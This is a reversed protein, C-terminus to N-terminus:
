TSAALLWFVAPTVLTVFGVGRGEIGDIMNDCIILFKGKGQRKKAKCKGKGKTEGVIGQRELMKGGRNLTEGSKGESARNQHAASWM